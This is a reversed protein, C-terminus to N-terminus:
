GPGPAGSPEAITTAESATRSMRRSSDPVALVQRKVKVTLSTVEFRTGRRADISWYVTPNKRPSAVLGAPKKVAKGRVKGRSSGLVTSHAYQDRAQDFYRLRAESGHAGRAAGGAVSVQFSQYDGGFSDPLRAGFVAAVVTDRPYGCGSKTYLALSGRPRGRPSRVVSGCQSEFEQVLLDTARFTTTTPIWRLAEPRLTVPRSVSATNGATDRTILEITYTGAPMVDAGRRGDRGRFTFGRSLTGPRSRDVVKGNSNTVVVTLDDAGPRRERVVKVTDRYGDPEPYFESASLTFGVPSPAQSDWRVTARMTGELVGFDVTEMSLLVDLRYTGDASGEPLRLGPIRLLDYTQSLNASGSAATVEPQGKPSLTWAVRLAGEFSLEGVGVLVQADRHPGAIVPDSMDAQVDLDRQVEVTRQSSSCDGQVCATVSLSWAGDGPFDLTVPGSGTVVIDEFGYGWYQDMVLHVEATEDAQIDVVYETTDPNFREVEPWSVSLSPAAAQVPAVAALAVPASLAVAAVLARIKM